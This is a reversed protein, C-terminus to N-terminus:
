VKLLNSKICFIYFNNQAIKLEQKANDITESSNAHALNDRLTKIDNLFTRFETLDGLNDLFDYIENKINNSIENLKNGRKSQNNIYSKSKGERQPNYLYPHFNKGRTTENYLIIRRSDNSLEYISARKLDLYNKVHNKLNPSINEVANACYLSSAEYLLTIANLLYGKSSLMKSLEFFKEYEQKNELNKIEKIHSLIDQFNFSSLKEDLKLAELSTILKALTNEDYIKKFSNALIHNSILRLNDAIEAFAVNEFAVNSSITYNDSFNELIISLNAIELYEKLDIIEYDIGDKKFEKAFLIHKINKNSQFNQSILSITALIPLHRFGHTLDLISEEQTAQTVKNIVKLVEYFNNENEILYKEDFKYQFDEGFEVELMEKQKNKALNTYIAVVFDANFHEKNDLLLSFMNIYKDRKLNQIQFNESFKYKVKQIQKQKNEDVRIGNSAGLITYIKM